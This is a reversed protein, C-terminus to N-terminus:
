WNVGLSLGVRFDDYTSDNGGQVGRGFYIGEAWESRLVVQWNRCPTYVFRLGPGLEILNDTYNAKVDWALNQMVYADMAVVVGFQALRFGERVQGYGLWSHFRDYYSFDAGADVWWDGRWIPDVPCSSRGPGGSDNLPSQRWNVGPGWAKYGYVGATYDGRWEGKNRRDLLDKNGGGQVYVFLYEQAFLQARVGGYLSISNDSIITQRAGAGSKTDVLYGYGILSSFRTHYDGSMYSEGWYWKDLNEVAPIEALRRDVEKAVPTGPNKARVDKLVMSAEQWRRAQVLLDARMMALEVSDPKEVAMKETEQCARNVEGMAQLAYLRQMKISWDLAGQKNELEDIAAVVERHQRKEALNYIIAEASPPPAVVMAPVANPDTPSAVTAQDSSTAADQAKIQAMRKDAAQAAESGPHHERAVQELLALAEPKRGLQLLLEARVLALDTAKPYKVALPEALELAPAYQQLSAYAYIRQM